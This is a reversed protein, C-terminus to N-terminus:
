AVFGSHSANLPDDDVRTLAHVNHVNWNNKRSDILARDEGREVAIYVGETETGHRNADLSMCTLM